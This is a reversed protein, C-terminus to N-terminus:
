ETLFKAYDMAIKSLQFETLYVGDHRILRRKDKKHDVVIAGASVMEEIVQFRPKMIRNNSIFTNLVQLVKGTKIPTMGVIFKDILESQKKPETPLEHYTDGIRKTGNAIRELEANREPSNEM